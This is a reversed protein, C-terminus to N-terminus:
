RPQLIRGWVVQYGEVEDYLNRGARVFVRMNPRLAAATALEGNDLYRTDDRLLITREGDRTHLVLRGANVRAIVGSLALDGRVFLPDMSFAEALDGPLGRRRARYAAMATNEAAPTKDRSIVALAYRVLSGNVAESQVEVREGPHLMAVAVPYNDREVRTHTDFRYVLVEYSDLRISFEGAPSQTDRELLVGHTVPMPAPLVQAALAAATLWALSVWRM